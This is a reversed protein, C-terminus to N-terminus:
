STAGAVVGGTAYINANHGTTVHEFHITDNYYRIKIKGVQIYDNDNTGIVNNILDSINFEVAAAGNYTKPTGKSGLTLYYENPLYSPTGILDSYTGTKSVKHLNITGSFSESSKATQASTNNTKLTGVTPITPLNILDNYSGSSAVNALNSIYASDLKHTADIVDQKGALATALDTQDALTGTIAGWAVSGVSGGTPAKAKWLGTSNEYTLVYGDQAVSLTGVSVDTLDNLSAVITGGGNNNYGGASVFSDSYLGHSFHFCSNDSDWEIYPTSGNTYDGFYIKKKNPSGTGVIEVLGIGTLAQGSNATSTALTTGIYADGGVGGSGSSSITVWGNASTALTINSGAVLNLPNNASPTGDLFPEVGGNVYIPRWTNNSPATVPVWKLGNFGLLDGSTPPTTFDVDSLQSLSSAGGPGPTYGSLLADVQEKTYINISGGSWTAQYYSSKDTLTPRLDVLRKLEKGQAAALASTTSSSDLSNIVDIKDGLLEYLIRGCNASLAAETDESSFNNIVDVPTYNTQWDKLEKGLRASLAKEGSTIDPSAWDDVVTVDIVLHSLMEDTILDSVQVKKNRGDQVIAIFDTSKVADTTPFDTDKIGLAALQDRLKELQSKTLFFM